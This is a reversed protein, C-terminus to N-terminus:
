WVTGNQFGDLHKVVTVGDTTKEFTTLTYHSEALELLIVTTVGELMEPNVNWTETTGGFRYVLKVSDRRQCGAEHHLILAPFARVCTCYWWNSSDKLAAIACPDDTVLGIGHAPCDCEICPFAKIHETASPPTSRAETNKQVLASQVEVYTATAM